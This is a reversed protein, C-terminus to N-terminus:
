IELMACSSNQRDDFGPGLLDGHATGRELKGFSHTNM